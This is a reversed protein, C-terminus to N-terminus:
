GDAFDERAYGQIYLLATLDGHNIQARAIAAVKPKAHYAVGLGAAKLMMIDNAGDGVALTEETWLGREERLRILTSRKAAPGVIPEAVEGSLHDNNFLLTNAHFEDFGVKSAIRSTFLTFGGSVLSTYAGAARMTAILTRAGPMLTIRNEALDILDSQSVGKLLGVRKRLAVEFSWEGRMAFETIRSIKEKIGLLDGIEDICEQQIMTSDMDAVLLRKRRGITSIANCDVEVNGIVTRARQLRQDFDNGAPLAIECAVGEGLWHPTKGGAAARVAEALEASLVPRAASATLVLVHSM